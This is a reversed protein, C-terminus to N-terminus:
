VDIMAFNKFDEIVLLAFVLVLSMLHGNKISFSVWAVSYFFFDVSEEIIRSTNKTCTDLFGYALNSGKIKQTACQIDYAVYFFPEITSHFAEVGMSYWGCNAKM